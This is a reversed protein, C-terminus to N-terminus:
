IIGSLRANKVGAPECGQKRTQPRFEGAGRLVAREHTRPTLTNDCHLTLRHALRVHKPAEM